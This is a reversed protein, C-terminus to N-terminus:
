SSTRPSRKEENKSKQTELHKRLPPIRFHLSVVIIDHGRDENRNMKRIRRRPIKGSTRFDLFSSFRRGRVDNRKIKRNGRRLIQEQPASSLFSSFRRGRVEDRRIKLICRRLLEEQPVSNLYHLSTDDESTM